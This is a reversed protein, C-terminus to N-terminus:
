FADEVGGAAGDGTEDVVGAVGVGAHLFPEDFAFGAHCEEGAVKANFGAGFERVVVVEVPEFADSLLGAFAAGVFATACEAFAGVGRACFWGGGGSGGGELGEVEVAAREAEGGGVDREEEGEEREVGAEDGRQEGGGRM